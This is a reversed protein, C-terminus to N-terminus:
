KTARMGGRSCSRRKQRRRDQFGAHGLNARFQALIAEVDDLRARVAELMLEEPGAHTAELSRFKIECMPVPCHAQLLNYGAFQVRPDQQLAESLLFGLTHGENSLTVVYTSM